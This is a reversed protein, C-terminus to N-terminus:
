LELSVTSPSPYTRTVRPGLGCMLVYPLSDAQRAIDEIALDKGWLQARDGILPLAKSSVSVTMMDMSLRGLITERQGNLWVPTGAQIQRPYGDAYGIALVAVNCAETAQWRSGYGVTDGPRLSKIAIVPATLSMVPRLSVAQDLYPSAGYLMIGPRIWDCSTGIGALIGASNAMSVPLGLPKAVALLTELQNASKALSPQDADSFHSMVGLIRAQALTRACIELFDTSLGLRHMGTELKLWVKLNTDKVLDLQYPQHLAVDLDFQEAQQVGAEDFVGELLLIPHDIGASRLEIGEHVRAVAFADAAQLCRAVPVAGHGYANAKVVAMVKSHPAARKAQQFNFAISSLDIAVTADEVKM